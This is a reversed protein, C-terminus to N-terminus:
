YIPLFNIASYIRPPVAHTLTTARATAPLPHTHIEEKWGRRLAPLEGDM